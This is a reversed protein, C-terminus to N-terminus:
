GMRQLVLTTRCYFHYPPGGIGPPALNDPYREVDAAHLEELMPWAAKAAERDKARLAEVYENRHEVVSDLMIIRGDLARCIDSTRDDIVAKIRLAFIGTREYGTVRGSERTRTAMNDTVLRWYVQGRDVVGPMAEEIREAVQQRTLTQDFLPSLQRELMRKTWSEWHGGLWFSNGSGIVDLIDLDSPQLQVEVGTARAVEEVGLRYLVESLLLTKTYLPSIMADQGLATEFATMVMQADDATFGGEMGVERLHDLATAFAVQAQAEWAAAYAAELQALLGQYPNSQKLLLIMPKTRM